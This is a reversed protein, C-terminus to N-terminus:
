PKVEWEFEFLLKPPLQLADALVFVQSISANIVGREIRSIQSLEIDAAFALDQQTLGRAKRLRRLNAGFALVGQEHRTYNV